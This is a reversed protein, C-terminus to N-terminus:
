THFLLEMLEMLPETRTFRHKLTPIVTCMHAHAAANLVYQIHAARVKLSGYHNIGRLRSYSVNRVFCQVLLLLCWLVWVCMNVWIMLKIRECPMSCRVYWLVGEFVWYCGKWSVVHFLVSHRRMIHRKGWEYLCVEFFALDLQFCKM